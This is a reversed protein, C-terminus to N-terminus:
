FLSYDMVVASPDAAAKIETEFRQRLGTLYASAQAFEAVKAYTRALYDARPIGRAMAAVDIWPTAATDAAYWALSEARQREWTAIESPPYGATLSAIAAEYAENNVILTASLAQAKNAIATDVPVENISWRQVWKGNDEVPALLVAHHTQTDYEPTVQVDVPVVGWAALLVDSPNAPFSTDPNDLRLQRISYPATSPPKIYM